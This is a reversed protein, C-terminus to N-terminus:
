KVYRFTQNIHLPIRNSQETEIIHANHFRERIDRWQTTPHRFPQVCITRANSCSDHLDFALAMNESTFMMDAEDCILYNKQANASHIM